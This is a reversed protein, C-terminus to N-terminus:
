KHENILLEALKFDFETDIDISSNSDMIYAKSNEGYFSRNEKYQKTTCIYLAGNVRYYKKYDQRNQVKPIFNNMSLDNNLTNYYQIPHEAACVSVVSDLANDVAMKFAKEIDEAKRMPSTPQLVIFYDFSKGDLMISDIAHIIFEDALSKDTSISEPRLFPVQAGFRKGTEAYKKSDTSLYIYDVVKSEHAQKISYSLLPAGCLEKINKDTVGKSGSRAPIIALLTKDKYM